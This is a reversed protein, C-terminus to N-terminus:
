QQSVVKRARESVVALERAQERWHERNIRGDIGLHGELWAVNDDTFAAIQDFHYVGVTNLATEIVPLVGIINTLNDKTGNRPEAIGAPRGPQEQTLGVEDAAPEDDAIGEPRPAKASRKGGSRRPSWGGEIARMAAAEDDAVPASAGDHPPQAPEATAAKVPEPAPAESPAPLTATESAVIGSSEPAPEVPRVESIPATDDRTSTSGREVPFPIVEASPADQAVQARAQEVARPSPVLVGSTTQAARRAPAMVPVPRAPSLPPLPAVRPMKVEPLPAVTDAEQAAIAKAVEAFDPVPIEDPAAPQAPRTVPEIVPIAVLAPEPEVTQVPRVVPLAATVARTPALRRVALRALSGAIAGALFAALLLFATELIHAPNLM